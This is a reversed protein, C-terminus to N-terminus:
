FFLNDPMHPHAILSRSTMHIDYREEPSDLLSIQTGGMDLSTMEVDLSYFDCSPLLEEIEDCVLSFTGKTVQKWRADHFVNM